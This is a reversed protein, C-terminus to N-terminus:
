GWIMVTLLKRGAFAAVSVVIGQDANLIIFLGMRKAIVKVM